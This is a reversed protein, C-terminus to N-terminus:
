ELLTEQESCTLHEPPRKTQNIEIGSQDRHSILRMTQNTEIDSHDRHRILNQCVSPRRAEQKHM